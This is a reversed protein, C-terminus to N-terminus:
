PAPPPTTTPPATTAPCAAAAEQGDIMANCNDDIVNGCIEAAGPNVAAARDDCDNCWTFGDGDADSADGSGDQCALFKAIYAPRDIVVQRMEAVSAVFKSMPRLRHPDKEVADAIQASWADIWGQLRAVDWRALQQRLADIYRARWTPDAIVILYHPGAKEVSNRGVWWYIPNLDTRHLWAFTADADDILWRYGKGPYDYIYFNHSGGWYGDGNNLLAEGAWELVSTELDAVATVANIDRAAWFKALKQTDPMRENTKPTRGAEFLDGTPAEPYVRKLFGKGVNEENAYLGYYQGNITVRASNVCPAPQAFLDAMASYGVREQLFTDDNRPMDLVVKSVGHFKAASNVEEFSVVFQMKAKDGDDRVAHRWSSQGKLRVMADTVTEAGYHFVIPHYPNYDQGAAELMERNRFEYDIKAWEAPSIDFAYEVLRAPDFLDSCGNPLTTLGGTTGGSAGGAGDGAAGGAGDGAGGGAGGGDGAAGTSSAGGTSGTGSLKGSTDEQGRGCGVALLPAMAVVAVWIRRM